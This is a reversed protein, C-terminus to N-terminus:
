VDACHVYQRCPYKILFVVRCLLILSGTDTYHKASSECGSLTQLIYERTTTLMTACYFTAAQM